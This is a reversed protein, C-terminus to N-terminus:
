IGGRIYLNLTVSKASGTYAVKFGNLLKDSYEIEGVAGGSVSIVEHQITYNKTNRSEAIQVSKRSNNFPYEQSNTLTVPIIIGELGSLKREHSLHRRLLEMNIEHNEYIGDEMHNFNKASQPTGEQLKEGTVPVHQTIGNGVDVEKYRDPYQVVEDQWKTPTYM